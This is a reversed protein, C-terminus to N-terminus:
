NFILHIFIIYPCYAKQFRIYFKGWLKESLELISRFTNLIFYVAVHM